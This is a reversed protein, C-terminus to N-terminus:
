DSHGINYKLKLNIEELMMDRLAHNWERQFLYCSAMSKYEPIGSRDLTMILAAQLAPTFWDVRYEHRACDDAYKKLIAGNQKIHKAFPDYQNVEVRHDADVDLVAAAVYIPAVMSKGDCEDFVKPIDQVFQLFISEDNGMLIRDVEDLGKWFALMQRWMEQVLSKWYKLANNSEPAYEYSNAKVWKDISAILVRPTPTNRSYMYRSLIANYLSDMMQPDIIDFTVDNMGTILDYTLLSRDM